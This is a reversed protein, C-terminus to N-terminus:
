QLNDTHQRRSAGPAVARRRLLGLGPALLLFLWIPDMSTSQTNSITCGSSGGFDFRDDDVRALPLTTTTTSEATTTTTAATTTTTTAATTTTTTPGGGIITTTTTAAATTTTAAATTTTAAATTTTAAATTTTAAATTTTAAATTTTAAATTTTAAATTTTAAATTTTTTPTTPTVCDDLDLIDYLQDGDNDLGTGNTSFDEEGNMSCPAMPINLTTNMISAYWAPLTDESAPTFNAPDADAHCDSCNTIGSRHHHQRLGAGWGTGNENVM